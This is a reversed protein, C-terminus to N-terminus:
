VASRRNYRTNHFKRFAIRHQRAEQLSGTTPWKGANIRNVAVNPHLTLETGSDRVSMRKPRQDVVSGSYFSFCM